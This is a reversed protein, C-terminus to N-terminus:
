ELPAVKNIFVGLLSVYAVILFAVTLFATGALRLRRDALFRGGYRVAVFAVATALIAAIFPLHEKTEM